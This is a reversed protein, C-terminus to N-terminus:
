SDPSRSFSLGIMRSPRESVAQRSLAMSSNTLDPYLRGCAMIISM